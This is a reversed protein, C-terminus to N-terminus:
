RKIEFIFNSTTGNDNIQNSQIDNLKLSVLVLSHPTSVPVKNTKNM